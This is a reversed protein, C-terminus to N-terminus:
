QKKPCLETGDVAIGSHDANELGKMTAFDMTQNTGGIKFSDNKYNDQWLSTGQLGGWAMATADKLDINPFISKM